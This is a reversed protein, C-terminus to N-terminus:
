ARRLKFELPNAFWRALERVSYVVVGDETVPTGRPARGRASLVDFAQKSIPVFRSFREWVIWGQEPLNETEIRPTNALFKALEEDYSGNMLHPPELTFDFTV